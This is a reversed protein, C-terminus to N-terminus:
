EVGHVKTSYAPARQVGTRETVRCTQVKCETYGTGKTCTCVQVRRVRTDRRGMYGQARTGGEAWAKTGKAGRKYGQGRYGKSPATFVAPECALGATKTRRTGGTLVGGSRKDLPSSRAMSSDRSNPLAHGKSQREAWKSLVTCGKAEALMGESDCGVFRALHNCM